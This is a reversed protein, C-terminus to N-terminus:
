DLQKIYEATHTRFLRLDKIGNALLGYVKEPDIEWYMHVLLNRFRAMNILSAAFEDPIFGIKALNEFIEAYTEPVNLLQRKQELALVRNGINICTEIALQLFRETAGQLFTDNLYKDQPAKAAEELNRIYKDLFKLQSYLREDM